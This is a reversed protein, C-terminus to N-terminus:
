QMAIAWSQQLLLLLQGIGSCSRLRSADVHLIAICYNGAATIAICELICEWIRLGLHPTGSSSDWIFGLHPTGSSSDWILLGLHPTGSSSDWILLGLHPSWLPPDCRLVLAPSRLPIGCPSRLPCRWCRSFYGGGCNSPCSASGDFKSSFGQPFWLPPGCRLVVAPSRIPPGCRPVTAPFRLPLGLHSTGFSSDWFSGCSAGAPLKRPFNGRSVGM